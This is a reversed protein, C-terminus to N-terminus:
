EDFDFSWAVTRSPKWEISVFGTCNTIIDGIDISGIPLTGNGYLEINEWILESEPINCDTFYPPKIEEVVITNNQKILTLNPYCPNPSIDGRKNTEYIWVVTVIIVLCVVMVTGIVLKKNM